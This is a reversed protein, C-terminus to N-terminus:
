RQVPTVGPAPGDDDVGLAVATAVLAGVLALIGWNNGSTMTPVGGQQPFQPLQSVNTSRPLNAIKMPEKWAVASKDDDEEILILGADTIEYVFTDGQAPVNLVASGYRAQDAAKTQEVTIEYNGEAVNLTIESGEGDAVIAGDANAISYKVSQAPVLKQESDRNKFEIKVDAAQVSAVAAMALVAVLMMLTRKM